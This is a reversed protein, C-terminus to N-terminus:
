GHRKVDIKREYFSLHHEVNRLLPYVVWFLGTTLFSQWFLSRTPLFFSPTSAEGAATIAGIMTAGHVVFVTALWVLLSLLIAGWARHTTLFRASSFSVGYCSIMLLVVMTGVPTALVGDCLIGAIVIWKWSGLFGLLLTWAIVITLPLFPVFGDAFLVAFFSTQVILAVLLIVIRVFSRAM